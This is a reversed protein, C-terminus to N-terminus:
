YLGRVTRVRIEGGTPAFCLVLADAHDPSKVGRKALQDKTEIQIKGIPTRFWRVTSLQSALVDDDPLSILEDLPYQKGRKGGSEMWATHQYTKQLADRLLWWLEAKLSVFKERSKKNDLWVRQTPQQGVNVGNARVGPIRKLTAMVGSGIGFVDYNLMDVRERKCLEAFEVGTNIVDVDTWAIPMEVKPGHKVVLVSMDSGGGVDGGGIRHGAGKLELDRAARVWAAPCVVNDADAEWNRDIESAIVNAEHRGERDTRWAEGKRPDDKWDFIFLSDTGAWRTRKRHFPGGVAGPNVTSVDIKCDCNESLSAEILDPREYFASEDKFYISSRGGRGIQDGSEGTITAGTEPNRILNLGAHTDVHFGEPLLVGPINRLFIRAKEMISKPEGLKDVFQQKRSSVGVQAGPEYLWLWCGYAICAWTVGMERSKEVMGDHQNTYREHLWAIFERQREFMVFPMTRHQTRPDFTVGWHDIFLQPDHRYADHLIAVAKPNVPGDVGDPHIALLRDLRAREIAAYDPPWDSASASSNRASATASKM